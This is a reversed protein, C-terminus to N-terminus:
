PVVNLEVNITSSGDVNIQTQNGSDEIQATVKNTQDGNTGPDAYEASFQCADSTAGAALTDGILASCNTSQILNNGSNKDKTLDGYLDDVLSNIKVTRTASNNKVKVEYTVVSKTAKVLVAGSPSEVTVPVQFRDDCNCKSKTEPAATSPGTCINGANSHWSTCNPLNLFGDGDTDQCLVGPITFTVNTYSGANLDGCSDGDLNLAPTVGNTLISESCIGNPNRADAGGTINFFFAADYRENATVDVQFTATLTFTTGALCSSAGTAANVASIAKAIKIDSATCVLRNSNTVTSGGYVQQMCVDGTTTPGSDVASAPQAKLLQAGLAVAILFFSRMALRAWNRKKICM